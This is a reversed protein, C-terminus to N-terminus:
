GADGPRSPAIPWKMLREDALAVAGLREYFREAAPNRTWVTWMVTECGEDRGIAALRDMIRAGIGRSRWAERVFLDSLWVMGEFTDAWFGINYIAYGVPAGDIEAILASFLPKRGFGARALKAATAEVDFAPDSDDLAALFAHLEGAMAAVAPMDQREARRIAASPGAITM